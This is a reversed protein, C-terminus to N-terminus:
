LYDLPLRIEVRTGSPQGQEDELDTFTVSSAIKKERNLLEIRERTVKMGLSKHKGLSAAKLEASKKRGIGNDEIEAHLEGDGTFIKLRLLGPSGKPMIGHLIANEVFPQLLLPPILISETDIDPAVEIVYGLNNKFRLSEMQIYLELAELDSSLPVAPHMSNEFILRILRSFRALYDSATDPNNTSIYKNISNLSNFIFHPNMQARLAKMEVEALAVRFETKKKEERRIQRVRLKFGGLSIGAALLFMAGKFWGTKWFPPTIIISVSAMKDSWIGDNNAARVRFVYEGPDLNTYSAYHRNGIDNWDPDFNEMRYSYTNKDPFLYNLASFEFSFFNQSYRLIIKRKGTISSDLPYPKEFVKFGILVVPPRYTNERISDPHFATIGNTNGFYMWGAQNRFSAGLNFENSSLGDRTSYNKVSRPRNSEAQRNTFDLRVPPSFKCIGNNTSLWLNGGGDMELAYVVNNPLGDRDTYNLFRGSRKDFANLGGGNTGLWLTGNGDEQICLVDNHSIAAQQGHKTKYTQFRNTKRDFVTLGGGGTGFYMRHGADEHIAFVTNSGMGNTDPEDVQYRRLLKLGTDYEFAGGIQSGIWLHNLHDHFIKLVTGGSINQKNSFDTNFVTFQNNTRDFINLGGGNTGVWLRQQGDASLCWVSNDSLSNKRGPVNVYRIVKQNEGDQFHLGGGNTGYWLGHRNDEFVSYVNKNGTGPNFLGNCRTFYDFPKTYLDLGSGNNGIWLLGGRDRYFCLIQNSSLSLNNAPENELHSIRWTATDLLLIGNGNTGIWLRGEHDEYFCNIFSIGSAQLKEQERIRIFQNKNKDFYCIGRDFTGIWLRNRSDEFLCQVRNEPLSHPNEPDNLFIGTERTEPNIFHLGERSAIWITGDSTRLMRSVNSHRTLGQKSRSSTLVSFKETRYDFVNVGGNFTAVLFKSGRLHIMDYVRNSSISGTDAPDHRYTKFEGTFPNMRCLGGGNTGMWLFGASDEFLSVIVSSPLGSTDGPAPKYHKFGTGDYRNLGDGTGIWIFGNKDQLICYVTSQSLGDEVKLHHFAMEQQAQLLFSGVM